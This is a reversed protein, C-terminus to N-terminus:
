TEEAIEYIVKDSPEAYWADEAAAVAYDQVVADTVPRDFRVVGQELLDLLEDKAVKVAEDQQTATLENFRKM